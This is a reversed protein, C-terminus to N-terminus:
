RINHQLKREETFSLNVNLHCSCCPLCSLLPPPYCLMVSCPASSHLIAELESGCCWSVGLEFSSFHSSKLMRGLKATTIGLEGICLLIDEDIIHWGSLSEIWSRQRYTRDHYVDELNYSFPLSSSM